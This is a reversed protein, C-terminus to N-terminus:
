YCMVRGLEQQTIERLKDHITKYLKLAHEEQTDAIEKRENKHWKTTTRMQTCSRQTEM